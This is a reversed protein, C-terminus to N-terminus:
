ATQAKLDFQGTNGCIPCILLSGHLALRCEMSAIDHGFKRLIAKSAGPLGYFDEKLFSRTEIDPFNEPKAAFECIKCKIEELFKL